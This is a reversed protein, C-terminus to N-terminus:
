LTKDSGQYGGANLMLYHLPLQLALFSDAAQQVSSLDTLDCLIVQM